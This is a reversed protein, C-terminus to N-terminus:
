EVAPPLVEVAYQHTITRQLVPDEMQIRYGGGYFMKDVAPITGSFLCLGNRIGGLVSGALDMLVEPRILQALTGEQYLEWISRRKAWCRLVLEDWHDIVSGYEWVESAMINPCAQKAWAVGHIELKRDSHDSGVTVYVNGDQVVLVYEIEGSTEEHQVQILDTNTALYAPVPYVTPIQRPAAVGMEALEDIHKKVADRNRGAYGVNLLYTITCCLDKNDSYKFLM